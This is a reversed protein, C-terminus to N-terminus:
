PLPIPRVSEVQEAFKRNRHYLNSYVRASVKKGVPKKDRVFEVGVPWGGGELGREAEFLRKLDIPRVVRFMCVLVSGACVRRSLVSVRCKLAM